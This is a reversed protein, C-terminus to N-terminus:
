NYTLSCPHTVGSIVTGDPNSVRQYVSIGWYRLKYPYLVLFRLNVLEKPDGKPKLVTRAENFPYTAYYDIGAGGLFKPRGSDSTSLTIHDGTKFEVFDFDLYNLNQSSRDNPFERNGDGNITLGYEAVVRDIHIKSDVVVMYVSQSASKTQFLRVTATCNPPVAYAPSASIVEVLSAMVLLLLCIFNNM